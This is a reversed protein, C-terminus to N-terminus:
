VQPNKQGRRGKAPPLGRPIARRPLTKTCLLLPEQVKPNLSAPAHQQSTAATVWGDPSCSSFTVLGVLLWRTCARRPWCSGPKPSSGWISAGAQLPFQSTLLEQQNLLSSHIINQLSLVFAQTLPLSPDLNNSNNLAFGLTM